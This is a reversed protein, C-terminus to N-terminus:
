RTFKPNNKVFHKIMRDFWFIKTKKIYFFGIGSIFLAGFLNVMLDGMTDVLGSKQMNFGFSSDMLFEFVEWLTGLALSFCFSFVTITVPKAKIKGSKYLVYLIVFGIFGLIVAAVAHLLIDWWWFHTYYRNLEGLFLSAYIFVVAFIRLGIPIAIYTLKEMIFSICILFFTIISFILSIWNHQILAAIFAIFVTLLLIIVLASKEPNEKIEKSLETKM